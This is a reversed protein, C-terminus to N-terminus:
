YQSARTNNRELSEKKLIELTPDLTKLTADMDRIMVGFSAPLFKARGTKEEGRELAKATKVLEELDAESIITNRGKTAGVNTDKDDHILICNRIRELGAGLTKCANSKRLAYNLNKDSEESKDEALNKIELYAKRIDNTAIDFLVWFRPLDNKIEQNNDDTLTQLSPIDNYSEDRRAVAAKISRLAEAAAAKTKEDGESQSEEMGTSKGIHEKGSLKNIADQTKKTTEAVENIDCELVFYLDWATHFGPCACLLEYAERWRIRAANIARDLSALLEHVSSRYVEDHAYRDIHAMVPSFSEREKLEVKARSLRAIIEDEWKRLEHKKVRERFFNNIGYAALAGGIAFAADYLLEESIHEASIAVNIGLGLLGLGVVTLFIYFGLYILSPGDGGSNAVHGGEPAAPGGGEKQSEKGSPSDGGSNAVHGGEPAAPGGGEKQSEKGNANGDMKKDEWKTLKFFDTLIRSECYIHGAM